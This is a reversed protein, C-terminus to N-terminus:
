ERAGYKRALVELMPHLPKLNKEVAEFLLRDDIGFYGHAVHNRVAAMDTWPIHPEALKVEQPIHRVAEGMIEYGRMVAWRTKEDAFYLDITMGEVFQIIAGCADAIDNLFDRFDRAQTM